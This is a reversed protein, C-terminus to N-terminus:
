ESIAERVAKGLAVAQDPNEDFYNLLNEAGKVKVPPTLYNLTYNGGTAKDIIFPLTEAVKINEYVEDLGRGFRHWSIVKKNPPGLPTREVKWHIEQGVTIEKDGSGIKWEQFFETRLKTSLQYDVKGGIAEIWKKGKPNFNAYLHAICIVIHKNVSIVPGMRRCFSAVLKSTGGMKYDGLDNSMETEDCMASISDLIILMGTENQLYMEAISLFDQASLIKGPRSNVVDINKPDLGPIGSMDRREIRNEANFYVPRVGAQQCHGAFHLCTTSKGCRPPGSIVVMSGQQIGGGLGADLAPSIPIVKKKVELIDTGSLVIGAGYKKEVESNTGPESTTRSIKTTKVPEKKSKAM